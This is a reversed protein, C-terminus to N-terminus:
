CLVETESIITADSHLWTFLLKACHPGTRILSRGIYQHKELNEGQARALEGKGTTKGQETDFQLHKPTPWQAMNQERLTGPVGRPM